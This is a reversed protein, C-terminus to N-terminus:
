RADVEKITQKGQDPCRQKEHWNTVEKWKREKRNEEKM